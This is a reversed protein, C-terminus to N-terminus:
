RDLDHSEEQRARSLANELVRCHGDDKIPFGLARGLAAMSGGARSLALMRADIDRRLERQHPGLPGQRYVSRVQEYSFGLEAEVLAQLAGADVHEDEHVVGRHANMGARQREGGAMSIVAWGGGRMFEAAQWAEADLAEHAENGERSSAQRGHNPVGPPEEMLQASESM